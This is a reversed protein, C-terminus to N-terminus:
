KPITIWYNYHPGGIAKHIINKLVFKGMKGEIMVIAGIRSNKYIIALSHNYNYNNGWHWVADEIESSQIGLGLGWSVNSNVKISPKVMLSVLDKDVLIPKFLQTFFIALDNTTSLLSSGAYSNYVGNYIYSFSSNNMNLRPLITKEMFQDFTQGTINEIAAQLYTFGGGSYSFKTGPNFYIRRNKGSIDNPLGSTHNLVMRATILKARSDNTFYPTDLYEELPKDLDLLGEQVLYLVAYASVVKSLSAGQYRENNKKGFESNYINENGSFITIAVRDLRYNEIQKNIYLELDDIGDLIENKSKVEDEYISLSACSVLM